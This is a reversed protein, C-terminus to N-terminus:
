TRRAALIALIRNGVIVGVIAGVAGAAGVAGLPVARTVPDSMGGGSVALITGAGFVVGTIAEGVEPFGGAGLGKLRLGSQRGAWYAPAIIPGTLLLIWWGPYRNTMMLVVDLGDSFSVRLGPGFGLLLAPPLTWLAGRLTIVVFDRWEKDQNRGLDISHSWGPLCSLWWVPVLALAIGLDAGALWATFSVALAFVLRSVQGPTQFRTGALLGGRIRFALGCLVASLTLEIAHLM